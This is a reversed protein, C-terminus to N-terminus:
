FFFYDSPILYSSLKLNTFIIISTKILYTKKDGLYFQFNLYLIELSHRLESNNFFYKILEICLTFCVFVYVIETASKSCKKLPPPPCFFSIGFTIKKKLMGSLCFNKKTTSLKILNLNKLM